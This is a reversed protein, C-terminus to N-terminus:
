ARVSGQKAFGMRRLVKEFGSGYQMARKGANAVSLSLLSACQRLVIKRMDGAVRLKPPLSLAFQVVNENLYPMKMTKGWEQAVMLDRKIGQEILMSVDKRIAQERTAEDMAIYRHYGAFLEDAGQGSVVVDERVHGILFYLPTYITLEVYDPMRGLRRHFLDQLCTAAEVVEQPMAAVEVLEGGIEASVRRAEEMDRSGLVGTCYLPGPAHKLFIKALVSSDLGGSFLYGVKGRTEVAQEELMRILDYAEKM